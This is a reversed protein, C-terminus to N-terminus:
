ASLRSSSINEWFLWPLTTRVSSTEINGGWGELQGCVSSSVSPVVPGHHQRSTCRLGLSWYTKCRTHRTEPREVLVLVTM